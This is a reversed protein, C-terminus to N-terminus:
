KFDEWEAFQQPNVARRYDDIADGRALEWRARADALCHGWTGPGVNGGRAAYMAASTAFMNVTSGRGEDRRRKANAKNTEANDIFYTM